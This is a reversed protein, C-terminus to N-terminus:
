LPIFFSQHFVGNSSNGYNETHLLHVARCVGGGRVDAGRGREVVRRRIRVRRQRGGATQVRRTFGTTVQRGRIRRGSRGKLGGAMGLRTLIGGVSAVVRRPRRRECLTECCLNTASM